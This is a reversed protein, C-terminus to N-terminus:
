VGSDAKWYLLSNLYQKPEVYFNVHGYCLLSRIIRWFIEHGSKPSKKFVAIFDYQIDSFTKMSTKNLQYIDAGPSM